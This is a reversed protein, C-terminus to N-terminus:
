KAFVFHLSSVHSGPYLHIWSLPDVSSFWDTRPGLQGRVVRDTFVQGLCYKRKPKGLIRRQNQQYLRYTYFSHHRDLFICFHLFKGHYCDPYIAVLYRDLMNDIGLDEKRQTQNIKWNFLSTWTCVLHVKRVSDVLCFHNSHSITTRHRRSDSHHYMHLHLLDVEVLINICEPNYQYYSQETFSYTITCGPGNLLIGDLLINYPIIKYRICSM